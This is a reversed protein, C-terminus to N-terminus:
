DQEEPDTTGRMDEEEEQRDTQALEQEKETPEPNEMRPLSVRLARPEVRFELPTELVFPEGDIAARIRGRRADITLSERALEKWSSRFLGSPAYVHLLGEDLTAREGLSMMSLEYANNSVLIVRSRIRRGDIRIGIPKPHQLVVGFARLRALANSRRRHKERRHVLQAYVGLSVNNLFVHDNVRGVDIRKEVGDTFADLAGIPDDRDLGVDRAFHNRTGFPICVFPVDREIAVEAIAALSGGGGAMGIATADSRRALEAADDEKSLVHVDIGRERAAAVLEDAGGDGSNPNILLFSTM